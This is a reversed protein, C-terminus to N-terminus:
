TAKISAAIAADIAERPTPKEEGIANVCWGDFVLELHRGGFTATSPRREQHTCVFLTSRTSELFDLRATDESPAAPAPTRSAALAERAQERLEGHEDPNDAIRQVFQRLTDPAPQSPEVAQGTPQATPAALALVARAFHLLGFLRYEFVAAGYHSRVPQKDGM